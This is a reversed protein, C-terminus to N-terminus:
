LLHLCLKLAQQAPGMVSRPPLAQPAPATRVWCVMRVSVVRLRPTPARCTQACAWRSACVPGPTSDPFAPLLVTATSARVYVSSSPRGRSHPIVRAPPLVGATKTAEQYRTWARVIPLKSPRLGYTSPLQAAARHQKAKLGTISTGQQPAEITPYIASFSGVLYFKHVQEFFHGLVYKSFLWIDRQDNHRFYAGIKAVNSVRYSRKEPLVM